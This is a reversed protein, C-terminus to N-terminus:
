FYFYLLPWRDLCLRACGERGGDMCRVGGRLSGKNVQQSVRHYIQTSAANAVPKTDCVVCVCRKQM